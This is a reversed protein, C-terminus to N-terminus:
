GGGVARRGSPSPRPTRVPPASAAGAAGLTGNANQDRRDSLDSDLSSPFASAM